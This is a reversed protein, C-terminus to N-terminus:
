RGKTCRLEGGGGPAGPGGAGPGGAGRGGRRVDRFVQHCHLCADAVDGSMDSVKEQNRTQSAAYTRRGVEAMEKSFRIWDPDDVPVPKGNQCTRGPTLMLPASEALALSAYDVIDWGSYLDTGWQAWNFGSDDVGSKKKEAPNHTQVTFIINSNPFMIGRMLQQLNAAPPFDAKPGAPAPAASTTTAPSAQRIFAALDAAQGASLKGPNDLPMTNRIKSILEANPWRTRFDGRALPPGSRGELRDGHCTACQQKFLSGGSTTDQASMTIAFLGATTVAWLSKKM